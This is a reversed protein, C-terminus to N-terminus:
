GVNFTSKHHFNWIDFTSDLLKLDTKLNIYNNDLQYVFAPLIEGGGPSNGEEGAEAQPDGKRQKEKQKEDAVKGM